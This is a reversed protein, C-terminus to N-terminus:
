DGVDLEDLARELECLDDVAKSRSLAALRILTDFSERPM